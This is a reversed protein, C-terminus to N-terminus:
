PSSRPPRACATRAPAARRRPTATARRSRLTRSAARASPPRCRRRVPRAQGCATCPFSSPAAARRGRRPSRRPGGAGSPRRAHPAHRRPSPPPGRRPPPPHAPRSRDSKGRGSGSSHARQRGHRARTGAPKLRAEEGAPLDERGGEADRRVNELRRARTEPKKATQLRYLIAYRNRSDLAAFFAAAAPRADLERSRPRGARRAHAARRLRSGAATRGPASSRSCGRPGCARRGRDAGRGERLQDEVLHEQGRPTFRQVWDRADGKGTSARRDLRVRARGRAGRRAHRHRARVVQARDPALGRLRRCPEGGVLGEM